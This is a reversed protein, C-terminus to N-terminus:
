SVSITWNIKIQDDTQLTTSTFSTGAFLNGGNKYLGTTNVVKSDCTSTFTYYVSWNGNNALNQTSATAKALGCDTYESPLSTSSATPAAGNGLSIQNINTSTGQLADRIMDKGGNTLLNYQCSILEDNKYVCVTAKYHVGDNIGFNNRLLPITLVVSVLLVGLLGFIIKKDM